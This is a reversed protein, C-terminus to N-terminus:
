NAVPLATRSFVRLRIPAQSLSYIHEAFLSHDWFSECWVPVDWTGFLLVEFDVT